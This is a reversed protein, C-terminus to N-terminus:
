HQRTRTPERDARTTHRSSDGHGGARDRRTSLNRRPSRTRSRWLWQEKACERDAEELGQILRTRMQLADGLSKMAIAREQLDPLNHYNTVSGVALVPHDCELEQQHGGGTHSVLVQRDRLDNWEVGGVCLTSPLLFERIPNVMHTM